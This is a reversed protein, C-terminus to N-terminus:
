IATVTAPDHMESPGHPEDTPAEIDADARDARDLDGFSGISFRVIPKM